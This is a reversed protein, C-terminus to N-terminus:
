TASACVRVAGDLLSAPDFGEVFERVWGNVNEYEYEVARATIYSGSLEVAGALAQQILACLVQYHDPVGTGWLRLTSIWAVESAVEISKEHDLALDLCEGSGRQREVEQAKRVLHQRLKTRLLRRASEVTLRETQNM